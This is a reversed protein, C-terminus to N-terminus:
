IEFTTEILGLIADVALSQRNRVLRESLIGDIPALVDIAVGPILVEAIREGKRVEDGVQVFWTSFRALEGIEPLAIPVKM